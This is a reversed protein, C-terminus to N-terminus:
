CCCFRAQKDALENCEIEKHGPVWYVNIKNNREHIKGLSINIGFVIDINSKPLQNGFAPGCDTLLHIPRNQMCDLESYFDLKDSYWYARRM